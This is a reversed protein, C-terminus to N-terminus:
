LQLSFGCPRSGTQVKIDVVQNSMLYWDMMITCLLKRRMSTLMVITIKNRKNFYHINTGITLVKCQWFQM